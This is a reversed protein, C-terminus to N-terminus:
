PVLNGLLMSQDAVEPAGARGVQYFNPVVAALPAHVHLRRARPVRPTPLRRVALFVAVRHVAQLPPRTPHPRTAPPPARRPSCPSILLRLPHYLPLILYTSTDVPASRTDWPLLSSCWAQMTMAAKRQVCHELHHPAIGVQVNRLFHVLM